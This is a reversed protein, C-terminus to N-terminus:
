ESINKLPENKDLRTAISQRTRYIPKLFSDARFGSPGEWPEFGKGAIVFDGERVVEDWRVRRLNKLDDTKM